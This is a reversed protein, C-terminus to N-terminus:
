CYLYPDLRPLSVQMLLVTALVRSKLELVIAVYSYSTLITVVQM